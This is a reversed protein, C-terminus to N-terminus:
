STPEGREEKLRLPYSANGSTGHARLGTVVVAAFVRQVVQWAKQKWSKALASGVAWTQM